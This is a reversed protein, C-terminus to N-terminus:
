TIGYLQYKQRSYGPEILNVSITRLSRIKSFWVQQKQSGFVLNRLEIATESPISAFLHELLFLM